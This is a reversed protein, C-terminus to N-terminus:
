PLTTFSLVNGYTTGVSNAAVACFYFTTNKPLFGISRTNPSVDLSGSGINVVSTQNGLASCATNITGYRYRVTTSTGNPNVTSNLSASASSGVVALETADNTTVTPAIPLASTTFLIVNGYATGSSSTGVACFYYATSPSLSGVSKANPTLDSTGSGIATASTSSSLLDCTTNVTGYKYSVSTSVGNPNVTSNLIASNTSLDTATNTTVTPASGPTVFSLVNGYSTGSASTGVACFYYTTAPNLSGVSTANPSVSSTGSGIAVASTSSTLSSCEVNSLGYRYFVSTSVGNPNVISNLTASSSSGSTMVNTASSTTATPSPLTYTIVTALRGLKVGKTSSTLVAGVELTTSVTKVISLGSFNTSLLDIPATGTLSYAGADASNVGNLRYFLDLQPNVGGTSNRSACPTLSIQTITSNNPISSLSVIYSDRSGVVTTRNHDTNGNCSAEDVQTYHVSGSKPTFQSYAGDATPLLTSTTAALSDPVFVLALFIISFASFILKRM